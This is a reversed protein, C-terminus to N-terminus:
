VPPTRASEKQFQRPSIGFDRKFAASFYHVSSFGCAQAIDTASLKHELLLLKADEMRLRNLEEHIGCNLTERFRMEVVRRSAGAVAVVEPVGIEERYHKRLYTLAKGMVPDRTDLHGTSARGHIGTPPLELLKHRPEYGLVLQHLMETGVFGRHWENLEVSTLSVPALAATQQVDKDIVVIAVDEPIRLGNKLLANIVSYSWGAHPICLGVPKPLLLIERVAIAITEQFSKEPFSDRRSVSLGKQLAASYAGRNFNFDLPSTTFEPDLLVHAIGYRVLEEIALQGCAKYDPVVCFEASGAVLGVAPISLKKLRRVLAPNDVIGHLLGDWPIDNPLWDGRVSWRADLRLNHEEAYTRAGELLRPNFFDMVLGIVATPHRPSNLESDTKKM